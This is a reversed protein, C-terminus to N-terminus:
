TSKCLFLSYILAIFSDLILSKIFLIIVPQNDIPTSMLNEQRRHIKGMPLGISPQKQKTNTKNFNTNIQIM